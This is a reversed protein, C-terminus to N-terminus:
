TRWRRRVARRLLRVDVLRLRREIGQMTQLRPERLEARLAIRHAAAGGPELGSMQAQLVIRRQLADHDGAAPPQHHM